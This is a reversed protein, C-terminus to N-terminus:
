VNNADVGNVEDRVFQGTQWLCGKDMNRNHHHCEHYGNHGKPLWCDHHWINNNSINHMQGTCMIGPQHPEPDKFVQAVKPPKNRQTRIAHPNTLNDNVTICIKGAEVGCYTCAPLDRSRYELEALDIYKSPM